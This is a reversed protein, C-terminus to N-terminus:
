VIVAAGALTLVVVTAGALTLVLVLVLACALVLSLADVVDVNVIAENILAADVVGVDDVVAWTTSAGGVDDDNISGMNIIVCGMDIIDVVVIIIRGLEVIVAMDILATEIGRTLACTM